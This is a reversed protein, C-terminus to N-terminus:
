DERRKKMKRKRSVRDRKEIGNIKEERGEIGIRKKM